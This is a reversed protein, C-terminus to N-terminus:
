NILFNVGFWRFQKTQKKFDVLQDYYKIFANSGEGYLIICYPLALDLQAADCFNSIFWLQNKM